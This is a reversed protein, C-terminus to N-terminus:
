QDVALNIAHNQGARQLTIRQDGHQLFAADGKNGDRSDNGGVAEGRVDAGDDNIALFLGNGHLRRVSDDAVDVDDGARGAEQYYSELDKPMNYHIVYRVDSKDIGMGFANTAVMVSKRDFRFDDQNERREEESLGAHYRTAAIGRDCLFECVREVGARTACYVIGAKGARAQVLELTKALKSNPHLVEFYLNPRDFGTINCLPNALGLHGIIDARVQATATATFAAIVPRHPLASLFAAIKLYSPRFDQGWQSICHAEDVALLSIELEQALACFGDTLLREPAIYLIKYAGFRTDRYAERLGHEGFWGLIDDFAYLIEVNRACNKNNMASGERQLYHYYAGPLRVVQEALALVKTVIRIDEYWVKTAFRIGGETFLTRRYARNWPAMVGFFLQPADKTHTPLDAPLEEHLEGTVKGDREVLAGFLYLDAPTAAISASLDELLNPALWDDGDVFLLYDGQALEIGRNRAAGAGGNPQHLARVQNPHSAAYRDCIAGSGDPSGDDILLLEFDQCTQALISDVCKELYEEVRYVPIIISFQPM